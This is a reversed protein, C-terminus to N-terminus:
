NAKQIFNINVNLSTTEDKSAATDADNDMTEGTGDIWQVFFRFTDQSTASGLLHTLTIEDGADISVLPGGNLTYGTLVLDTVSSDDPYSVSITEDFSVGVESYDVIVDFHGTSTPAIIGEKINSNTDIVPVITSSFDSDALVDQDNVKFTWQAITFNSSASASSIYKAYSEQITNTLVLLSIM